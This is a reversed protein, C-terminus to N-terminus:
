AENKPAKMILTMMMKLEYWTKRLSLQSVPVNMVPAHQEDGERGRAKEEREERELAKGSSYRVKERGDQLM